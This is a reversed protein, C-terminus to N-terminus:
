RAAARAGTGAFSTAPDPPLDDGVIARDTCPWHSRGMLSGRPAGSRAEFPEPGTSRAVLEPQAALGARIKEGVWARCADAFPEQGRVALWKRCLL